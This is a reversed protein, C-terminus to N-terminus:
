NTQVILAVRGVYGNNTDMVYMLTYDHPGTPIQAKFDATTLNEWTSHAITVNQAGAVDAAHTANYLKTYVLAPHVGAYMMSRLKISIIPPFLDPDFTFVCAGSTEWGANDVLKGEYDGAIIEIQDEANVKLSATNAYTNTVGADLFNPWVTANTANATLYIGTCAGGSQTISNGQIIASEADDVYIGYDAAALINIWNDRVRPAKLETTNGQLYINKDTNAEFYNHYILINAADHVTVGNVGDSIGNHYIIVNEPAAGTVDVVSTTGGAIFNNNIYSNNTQNGATGALSLAYTGRGILRCNQVHTEWARELKVAATSFHDVNLDRIECVHGDYVHIGCVGGTAGRNIWAGRSGEVGCYYVPHTSDGIEMADAAGTHVLSVGPEITLWTADQLIQIPDAFTAGTCSASVHVRGGTTCALLAPNVVDIFDADNYTIAGTTGNRAKFTGSVADYFVTFKAPQAPTGGGMAAQMANAWAPMIKSGLVKTTTISDDISM